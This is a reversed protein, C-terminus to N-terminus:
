KCRQGSCTLFYWILAIAVIKKSKASIQSHGQIAGQTSTRISHPVRSFYSGDFQMVHSGFRGCYIRNQVTLAPGIVLSDLLAISKREMEKWHPLNVRLFNIELVADYQPLDKTYSCFSDSNPRRLVTCEIIADPLGDANMYWYVEKTRVNPYSRQNTPIAYYLGLDERWQRRAEVDQATWPADKSIDLRRFLQESRDRYHGKLGGSSQIGISINNASRNFTYM